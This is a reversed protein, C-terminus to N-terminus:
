TTWLIEENDKKIKKYLDLSKKEKKPDLSKKKERKIKPLDITIGGRETKIKIM